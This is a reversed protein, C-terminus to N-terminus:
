FGGVHNMMYTELRIFPLFVSFVFFATVAGLCLAAIVTGLNKIKHMLISVEESYYDAIEHLAEPLLNAKEGVSMMWFFFGPPNMAEQIADSFTKGKKIKKVAEMWRKQIVANKLLSGAFDLTKDLDAGKKLATSLGNALSSFERYRILEGLFSIRILIFDLFPTFLSVGLLSFILFLVFLLIPSMSLNAAALFLSTIFPLQIEMGEFLNVFTPMIWGAIFTSALFLMILVGVYYEISYTESVLSKGGGSRKVQLLVLGEILFGNKEAKSLFDFEQKPFLIGLVFPLFFLGFGSWVGLILTFILLWTVRTKKLAEGLLKGNKVEPYVKNFLQQKLLSPSIRDAAADVADPLSLNRKLFELLFSFFDFRAEQERYFFYLLFLFGIFELIFIGLDM